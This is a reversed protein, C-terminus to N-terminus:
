EREKPVKPDYNNCDCKMCPAGITTNLHQRKTHGCGCRTM